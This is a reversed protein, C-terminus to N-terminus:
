FRYLNYKIELTKILRQLANIKIHLRYQLYITKYYSKVLNYRYKFNNKLFIIIYRLNKAYLNLLVLRMELGNDYDFMEPYNSIQELVVLSSRIGVLM